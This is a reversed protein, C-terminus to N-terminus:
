DAAYFASAMINVTMTNENKDVRLEDLRVAREYVQLYDLFHLLEHYSGELLFQAPMEVYGDESVKREAFRIHALRMGSLDAGSQVDLILDDELPQAPLLESLLELESKLKNRQTDLGKLTVLRMNALELQQEGQILRARTEGLTRWQVVNLFLVALILVVLIVTKLASGANKEM